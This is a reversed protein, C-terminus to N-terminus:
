HAQKSLWDQMQKIEPTQAQKIQKALALMAPNKGYTQEITAMDIAGQHHPIMGKAFAVDPNADMTGQMMADHNSMDKQQYAQTIEKANSAAPQSAENKDLWNQMVSIESQQADVIKQALAKMEADKGYQLEVKAMAIAGEHHPIMGKAFGVDANKAQVGASMAQHMKNMIDMYAMIHPPQSQTDAASAMHHMSQAQTMSAHTSMSDTSSATTATQTTDNKTCATMGLALAVVWSLGVINNM